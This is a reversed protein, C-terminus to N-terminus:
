QNDIHCNGQLTLNGVNQVVSKGSQGPHQQVMVDRLVLQGANKIAGGFTATGAIINIGEIVVNGNLTIDFARAATVGEVSIDQTPDALIIVHKSIGVSSDYLQITQGNLADSFYVTDGAAVCDIVDTLSGPGSDATTTVVNCRIDITYDEVEGYTFTECPGPYANYKMSVRLRTTGLLATSPITYTGSVNTTAPGESFIEEGPDTFDGDKNFDIWVRFYENWTQGSFEPTMSLTYTEGIAANIVLGTYDSYQSAGSTNTFDGFSFTGIWEDTIINGQSGCYVLNNVTEFSEVPCGTVDGGTGYPTIQVFIEDDLPLPGPDYTTVNGVDFNNLLEGGGPTLGVNIKYGLQLGNSHSWFLDADLEVETSGAVPSTLQTCQPPGGSETTFTQATCGSANGALNYPTIIVHILQDTPLAGPDYQTVDGVDVDNVIQGGGATTGVNLLYGTAGPADAWTIDETIEVTNSGPVPSVLDTCQPPGCSGTNCGATAFEDYILDGPQAGFGNNFNIGVGSILHCYSMITGGAGTPLIPNNEDYCSAGEPTNGNNNAWENGCDDIQTNNGNWWCRHTHRSGFNHGLEHAIVTINWSYTPFPVVNTSLSASVACPISTSCLVDVYAIGGGLGRTSLLHALRGNYGNQQIQDVFENLAAGTSNLNIYPDPITWIFIESIGLPVNENDYLTSVENFLAAVWGETDAISSNNDQYSELDCEFYIEVCDGTSSTRQAAHAPREAGDPNLLTQDVFCDYNQKIKLDTDRFLVYRGSGTRQIRRNGTEDAFLIRVEEGIVSVVALSNDNGAIVGRYFVMDSRPTAPGQSTNLQYSDTFIDKRYLELQLLQKRTTIKLRLLSPRARIIEEMAGPAIDLYTQNDVYGTHMLKLVPDQIEVMLQLEEFTWN